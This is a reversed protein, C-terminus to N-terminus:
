SRPSDSSGGSRSLRPQSLEVGIALGVTALISVFIAPTDAVSGGTLLAVGLVAAGAVPGLAVAWWRHIVFGLLAGLVFPLAITM